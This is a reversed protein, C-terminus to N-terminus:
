GKMRQNDQYTSLFLLIWGIIFLLGGMPTIPGIWSAEFGLLERASLLYLSGSFLVIGAVFCWGAYIMTQTKRYFMLIGLGFLAFAHYFQYRVGTNFVELHEPTLQGKLSHAAFAGLIVAIMAM